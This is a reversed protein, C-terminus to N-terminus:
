DFNENKLKDFIEIVTLIIMSGREPNRNATAINETPEV